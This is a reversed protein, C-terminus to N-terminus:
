AIADSTHSLEGLPPIEEQRRALESLLSAIPVPRGFLYGQGHEIGIEELWALQSQQEIGEAVLSMGLRHAAGVLMEVLVRASHSTEIADIFFKDLKLIKAGLSQVYTLGSHGTGADDIAVAFGAYALEAVISAAHELDPLEQRETLELIIQRPDSGSAAVLARLEDAFGPELFHSPVVNVAITFNPAARLVEDMETLVRRLLMWTLTRARGSQEIQPIFLHPPIASGDKRLWRALVECGVIEGTALVVVPQVFPVIDEAALAEDIDRLLSKRPVILWALLVGFALGLLVAPIVFYPLEDHRWNSLAAGDISMSVTLPYRTSTTSFEVATEKFEERTAEGSASSAVVDGNSLLLRLNANASLAAPVVGFLLADTNVVAFISAQPGIRWLVGLSSTSEQSLRLLSVLTNRAPLADAPHVLEEDFSLTEPFAACATIGADDIVRIDKITGRVYVQRRMAGLASPSCGAVGAEVLDALGIFAFDAEIEARHLLFYSLDQLQSRNQHKILAWGAFYGASAFAATAGIAVLVRCVVRQTHECQRGETGQFGVITAFGESVTDGPKRNEGGRVARDTLQSFVPSFEGRGCM